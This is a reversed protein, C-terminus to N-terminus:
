IPSRGSKSSHRGDAATIRFNRLVSTEQLEGEKFINQLHESITRVDKQFLEGMARQSLWVTEGEMRVDIRTSGNEVQYLLIEGLPEPAPAPSTDTM